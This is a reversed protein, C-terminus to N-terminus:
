RKQQGWILLHKSSHECHREEMYFHWPFAAQVILLINNWETVFLHM